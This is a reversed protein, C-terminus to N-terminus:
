SKPSASPSDGQDAGSSDKKLAAKDEVLMNNTKLAVRQLRDLVDMSKGKLLDVHAYVVKDQEPGPEAPFPFLRAGGEDCGTWVLIAFMGLGKSEPKAMFNQFQIVEGASLQKFHIVGPEGNVPWEPVTASGLKLDQAAAISAASLGASM